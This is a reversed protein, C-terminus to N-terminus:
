EKVYENILREYLALRETEYPTPKHAKKSKSIEELIGAIPENSHFLAGVVKSLLWAHHDCSEDERKISNKFKKFLQDLEYAQIAVKELESRILALDFLNTFCQRLVWDAVYHGNSTSEVSDRATKARNIISLLSTTNTQAQQCVADREESSLPIKTLFQDFYNFYIRRNSIALGESDFRLDQLDKPDDVNKRNKALDLYAEATNLDGSNRASRRRAIAALYAAERGKRYEGKEDDPSKARAEELLGNAIRIANDCLTLV